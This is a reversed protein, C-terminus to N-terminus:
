GPDPPPGACGQLAARQVELWAARQARGALMLKVRDYIDAASQIAEPSDAFSPEPGTDPKCPVPVPVNVTQVRVIPEVPNEPGHACAGLALAALVAVRLGGHGELRNM